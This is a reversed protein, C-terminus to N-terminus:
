FERTGELFSTRDKKGFLLYDLTIITKSDWLIKLFSITKVSYVMESNGKAKEEFRTKTSMREYSFSTLKCTLSIENGNSLILM